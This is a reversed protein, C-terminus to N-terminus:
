RRRATMLDVLFISLKTEARWHGSRKVACDGPDMMRSTKDM